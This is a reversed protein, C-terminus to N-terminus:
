ASQREQTRTGGWALVVRKQARGIRPRACDELEHEVAVAHDLRPAVPAVRAQEQVHYAIEEVARLEDFEGVLEGAVVADAHDARHGRAIALAVKEVRVVVTRLVLVAREGVLDSSCVDSSWDSIRM